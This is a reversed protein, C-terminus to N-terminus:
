RQLFLPHLPSLEEVSGEGPENNHKGRGGGPGLNPSVTFAFCPTQLLECSFLAVPKPAFGWGQVGLPQYGSLEGRACGEM